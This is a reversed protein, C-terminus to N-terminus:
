QSRRRTGLAKKALKRDDMEIVKDKLLQYSEHGKGAILVVDGSQASKVARAIAKARDPEVVLAQVAKLEAVRDRPIGDLIQKIIVEPDEQRPNDNTITIRDALGAAIAGMPGRKSADRDGGCGFVVTLKKNTLERCTTLVQKLADPTHAYDVLVLFRQTTTIPEMRGPIVTVSELGKKIAPLKVGLGLGVAAAALANYINHRGILKLQVPVKDKGAQLEFSTGKMSVVAKQATLDCGPDFGYTVIRAGKAAKAMRPGYPDDGNVVALKDKKSQGPEVLHTFLRRKAAAYHDMTGHYDLHERTLNTFVAIDFDCDQVRNEMLAHSSVEMVALQCKREVMDGLLRQIDWAMPTTNAAPVIVGAIDHQITGIIGVRSIKRKGKLHSEWIARVMHTISTKGNTGTVGVLRLQQSPYNYFRPALKKIVQNVDGVKIVALNDLNPHTIPRELLIASAGRRIAEDIYQHGDHHQGHLCVFLDGSKIQRSDAILRRILMPRKGQLLAGEISAAILSVPIQM